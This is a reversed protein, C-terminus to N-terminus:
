DERVRGRLPHCLLSGPRSSRRDPAPGAQLHRGERVGAGGEGRLLSVPALHRPHLHSLPCDHVHCM